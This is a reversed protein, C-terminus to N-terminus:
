SKKWTDLPNEIIDEGIGILFDSLESNEGNKLVHVEETAPMDEVNTKESASVSDKLGIQNDSSPIKVPEANTLVYMTKGSSDVMFYQIAEEEPLAANNINWHSAKLKYKRCIASLDRNTYALPHNLQPFVVSEPKDSFIVIGVAERTKDIQLNRFIVQLSDANWDAFEEGEQFLTKFEKEPKKNYQVFFRGGKKIVIIHYVQQM